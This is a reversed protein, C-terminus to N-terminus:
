KGPPPLREDIDILFNWTKDLRGLVYAIALLIVGSFFGVAALILQIDSRVSAVVPEAHQTTALLELWERRQFVTSDPGVGIEDWPADGVAVRRLEVSM